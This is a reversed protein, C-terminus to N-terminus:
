VSLEATNEFTITVVMGQKTNHFKVQGNLLYVRNKIGSLGSGIPGAQATHPNFGIGNDAVRISVQNHHLRVKIEAKTAKAHKICNNILEQIMRFIYLQVDTRLFDATSDIYTEIHFHDTSTRQAMEKIGAVFGFDKLVTPTLEYSIQRTEKIVQDLLANVNKFEGKLYNTREVSELNLKIGYLLQCVSDHLARSILNREKEQAILTASLILKQQDNKLSEAERELRKRETIDTLIGAFYIFEEQMKIEHGKAAIYKFDDAGSAIRFELDIDKAGQIASQLHNSLHQQDDPHVLAILGSITGNFDCSKIGMIKFSHPDLFVSCTEGCITWTGTASAKLTMELREKTEKLVQQANRSETVDIVTIYYKVDTVVISSIARGEMRTFIVQGDALKLKIEATQKTDNYQMRHLFNYFDEWSQPSIFSQFRQYLITQRTINLLDIGNQNAEEVVGLYDLIFYGVPALDFLGVFKAREQDLTLYSTKLEDNQMELELQYVQLENLLINVDDITLSIKSSFNENKYKLKESLRWILSTNNQTASSQSKDM